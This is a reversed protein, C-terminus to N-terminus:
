TEENRTIAKIKRERVADIETKGRDGGRKIEARKEAIKRDQAAKAEYELANISPRRRARYEVHMGAPKTKEDRKLEEILEERRAVLQLTELDKTLWKPQSFWGGDYPLANPHYQAGRWVRYAEFSFDGGYLGWDNLM